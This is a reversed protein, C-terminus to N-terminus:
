DKLRQSYFFFGLFQSLLGKIHIFLCIFIHQKKIVCRLTVAKFDVLFLLLM